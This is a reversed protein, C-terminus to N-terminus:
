YRPKRLYSRLSLGMEHEQIIQLVSNLVFGRSLKLLIEMVGGIIVITDELM